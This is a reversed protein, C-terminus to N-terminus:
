VIHYKWSHFLVFLPSKNEKFNLLRHIARQDIDPINNNLESYIQVENASSLNHETDEESNEDGDKGELFEVLDMLSFESPSVQDVNSHINTQSAYIDQQVDQGFCHYLCMMELLLFASFLRFALRM